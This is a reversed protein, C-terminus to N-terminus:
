RGLGPASEVATLLCILQKQREQVEVVAAAAEAVFPWQIHITLAQAAESAQLLLETALM